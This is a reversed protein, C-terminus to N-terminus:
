FTNYDTLRDRQFNAIVVQLMNVTYHAVMTVLLEGTWVFLFCFGINIVGALLMGLTGQPLHMVGFVVSTAGILLLLPVIGQFAGLWLSRFLLEEMAIPPIFALAVLLWEARRKPLINLLLWPSYIAPGFRRIALHSILNVLLLVAVGATVGVGLGRWADVTYLGLSRPPLGSLWAFFLCIGVMIFRGITEPWSLLVNFEPKIHALLQNSRYTLWGVLVTFLIICLRAITLWLQSSDM